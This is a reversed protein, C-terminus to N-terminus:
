FILTGKNTQVQKKKYKQNNTNLNKAKQLNNQLVALYPNCPNSKAPAKTFISRRM